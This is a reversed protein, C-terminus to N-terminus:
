RTETTTGTATRMKNRNVNEGGDEGRGQQCEGQRGRGTGLQWLLWCGAAAVVLWWAPKGGAVEPLACLLGLAIPWVHNVVFNRNM